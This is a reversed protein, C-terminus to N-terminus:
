DGLDFEAQESEKEIHGFPNSWDAQVERNFTEVVFSALEPCAIDDPEHAFFYVQTLGRDSWKKLRECWTSVRSYDSPHLDNGIFRLLVFPATISTHLVDRRGAVDTIVLGIGTKQLYDVLAPLLRGSQFWSPHRFELALPLEKPWVKLFQHLVSKQSYDFHPSLQLFSVGLYQGFDSLARQWEKMLVQDLLGNRAHSITQPFKPCFRFGEPVQSIWESVIETTPLRYHTTNLEITNFARSYYHLFENQKAEKPYIRGLWTRSGWSPTGLYWHSPRKPLKELYSLSLPDDAPLSWDIGDVSPLKGFEM